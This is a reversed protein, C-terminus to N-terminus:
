GDDRELSERIKEAADAETPDASIPKYGEERAAGTLSGIDPGRSDFLGYRQDRHHVEAVVQGIVREDQTLDGGPEIRAGTEGHVARLVSRWEHPFLDDEFSDASEAAAVPELGRAPLFVSPYREVISTWEDDHRFRVVLYGADELRDTLRADREQRDAYDHPPGDVYVVTQQEDYIFDPRTGQEELYVQGRAPLRHGREELWTLWRRELDSDCQALLAARHDERPIPVPSAEVAADKWALLLPLIAHRDLQRHDMQNLYSMLCDYCAATCSERGAKGGQDDGTAPDFHCIELARHIVEKWKTPDSVLQRLIGAGGEASEYFLIRRREDRRPLPEAALETDELQFQVQIATKLAAQLSAMVADSQPEAPELILCNRSDQVFPIVRRIQRTLEDERDEEDDENKAWYGREIDLNFGLQDQNARRRWGLNIRWIRAADGYHLQVVPEGAVEVSATQVSTSGHRDAFRVAGVVEFGMRQREEEDANIRDLRRTSVNQLRFLSTLAEGLIADCNECRDVHDEDTIVHLYGCRPCLKARELPFEGENDEPPLIVRNIRYRAGEHYVVARPGFESIALFRPRSIFDDRGRRGRRGPLFASLPLRPFNYGPLFGESALYRYPYFDSQEGVRDAQLLELQSEAEARLRKARSRERADLSHNGIAENQRSRQKWAAKYLDRWRECADEFNREVRLLVSDVWGADYWGAGALTPRLTELANRAHEGARRRFDSSRLADAVSDVLPLSNPDALDLIFGMSEKLDLSAVFLWLAQVHARLLDENALDLRPPTVSGAVMLDPRRFFYQDHPSSSTCYTFVLAPQGSRGARGSRQAYNAPTPPVNRLNVANLDAIDVGLEMTPSCFLVPLNGERFRTERDERDDPSVQATHERAEVGIVSSAWEEYFRIFFDNPESGVSSASPVRLPDPPIEGDGPCWLLAAAPVQYGPSGGEGSPEAVRQLLGAIELAQFIQVIVTDVENFPIPTGASEFTTPRRLYRGFTSRASVNMENFTRGGIRPGPRAVQGVELSELVEDEDFAWPGALHQSSRALLREQERRDLCDVRLCLEKRLLDLLVKCVAEREEATASVLASHPNGDGIEGGWVANDACMEALSRYRIQLLGIQELNPLAVRWGRRLDRYLRYSLVGRLARETDEKAAYRAEPNSAYHDFPLGLTEFVRDVVEDHRLGAAGAGKAARHLASRLLGVEVFDNFHGAQLSADQRNDTFSLLKQASPELDGQERLQRVATLCLLTTATSRGGVGLPTLKAFDSRVRFDYSVGCRPCFRFPAQIFHMRLGTESSQGDPGLRTVQPVWKRRDRRVRLGGRAAEEIWDEPLQVSDPEWTYEEGSEPLFLFGTESDPTTPLRDGLMRPVYQASGGDQPHREVCYYEQGCENCFVLPLLVRSRDDPVFQQGFLTMTRAEHGELSAYVNEGRSIFQHLRFAFVPSRTRPNLCDQGAHLHERILKSCQEPPAEILSALENAAGGEGELPRPVVRVLRDGDSEIGFTSEIWSSLPHARYDEFDTPPPTGSALSDQLVKKATADSFDLDPTVRELTEGIVSEPKVEAGFLLSAVRAIENLGEEYSGGSALTASTGVCQLETAQFQERARRVLLAVDAGQRGRYTHLEDLVLFRLGQAGDVLRRERVRTLILELMVYNTLLIDPPDQQIRERDESSEQGTYRAFRVPPRGGAPGLFKQLENIQSNALANMPYVIIAQIGRGSGNRLVHDVIPLIYTLSKGSGTGTTLVYNEGQRATRIAEEQHRHLRISVRDDGVRFLRDCEAHLVGESALQEVTSGSQFNPNLQVLPDPWFTAQDFGRRVHESIRRDRIRLFSEVYSKYTQVLERRLEFVDM